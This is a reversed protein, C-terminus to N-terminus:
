HDSASAVEKVFYEELTQKVPNLSIVHADNRRILEMAKDVAQESDIELKARQGLRRIHRALPELERELSEPLHDVMLEVARVSVDLIEDLRGERVLRGKNLIAVRDCLAEVDPLIHSSFLITVGSESLEQTLSTIDRRGMPDLGSMPEDLFLVRPQNLLAQAIGVRQIMGKSYRRLQLEGAESLGVRELLEGVRVRRQSRSLGFLQGYYDLLERGTLYDYFYPNEPLYGIRAKVELDGVPKGMILAEGETPFILDMLLKLTTTKGAGNPGILGFLEGEGVSLTLHDLARLKRDRLSGLKYDKTLGSMEVVHVVSRRGGAHM